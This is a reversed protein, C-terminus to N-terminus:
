LVTNLIIESNEVNLFSKKQILSKYWAYTPNSKLTEIAFNHLEKEIQERGSSIKSLIFKLLFVLNDNIENNKLLFLIDPIWEIALTEEIKFKEIFPFITIWFNSDNM